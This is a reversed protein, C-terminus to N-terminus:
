VFAKGRLPLTRVTAEENDNMLRSDGKVDASHFATLRRKYGKEAMIAGEEKLPKL